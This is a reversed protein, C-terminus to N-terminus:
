DGAKPEELLKDINDQDFFTHRLFSENSTNELLRRVFYGMGPLLEGLPAYLRVLYGLRAYTDAIPDAMGFLMQLEFDKKELGKSEAYCCAHSLSRINHSAFAPLCLKHNDVLIRSLHEFQADSSEKNSFLPSSWGNLESVITEYDWYAGKVLRVAIPAERTHAFKLMREVVAQSDKAYAQIVIGPYAYGKLAGSGFVNEFTDYIIANNASDEADVYLLAGIRQAETAIVSLRESLVEVSRKLNLPSCQSYLATLKVSICVPSTEGPHGSIIPKSSSWKPIHEQFTKLADLYRDVYISAERESVSFEGLLDVTFCLNRSRIKRLANLAKKPSAGVIFQSATQEIGKIVAYATLQGRISGPKPNTIWGIIPHIESASNSLYENIHETINHRNKLSPLVDILRFMNVKFEPHMMSWEMVRSSWFNKNFASPQSAGIGKFVRRGFETVKQQSFEM